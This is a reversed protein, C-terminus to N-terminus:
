AFSPNELVIATIDSFFAVVNADEIPAQGPHASHNRYQFCTRLRDAQNGDILGLWEIIIILDTDFIAQLEGLTSISFEKNWNKFKGSKQNKIESSAKNFKDFGLKLIQKQTKDITACWGMVIAARGFGSEACEIAEKLYDSEEPNSLDPILKRLDLVSEIEFTSQKIPLIFRDDFKRLAGNITKLYSSKRNNPRSLVHLQKMQEAMSRIEEISLKFKHELPSRIEEVWRTAIEDAKSRIGARYIREGTVKGVERKLDRLDDRFIELKQIATEKM